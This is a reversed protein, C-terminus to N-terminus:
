VRDSGSTPPVSHYISEFYELLLRSDERQWVLFQNPQAFPYSAANVEVGAWVAFYHEINTIVYPVHTFTAMTSFGSSAGLFLHSHALLALEHALSLGMMRPIAVNARRTLASDWELFGGLMLFQVDPYRVGVDDIFKHWEDLPSDRYTVV